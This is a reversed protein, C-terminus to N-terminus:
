LKFSLTLQKSVKEKLKITRNKYMEGKLIQINENNIKDIKRNPFFDIDYKRFYGYKSNKNRPKEVIRRVLPLIILAVKEQGLNDKNSYDFCYSISGVLVDCLQIFHSFSPYNSEKNHDSLPFIIKNCNFKIGEEEQIKWICHLDFYDHSELLGESDHIINDIEIISTKKFFYKLCSVLSSRFFRNYLNSYKGKANKSNGFYSYDIKDCDIGLVKFYYTDYKNKGDDIIKNIWALALEVKKGKGSKNLGSFKLEFNYSIREREKNLAELSAEIKETPVILMCIYNWQNNINKREDAFITLHILNTELSDGFINTYM